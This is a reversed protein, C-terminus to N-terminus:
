EERPASNSLQSEAPAADPREVEAHPLNPMEHDIALPLDAPFEQGKQGQLIQEHVLLQAGSMIAAEPHQDAFNFVRRMGYLVLAMLALMLPLRIWWEDSTICVAGVVLCLTILLHTTNGFVGGKLRIAKVKSLVQDINM